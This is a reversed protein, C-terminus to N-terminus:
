ELVNESDGVARYIELGLKGHGVKWDKFAVGNTLGLISCPMEM